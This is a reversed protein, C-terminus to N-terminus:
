NKKMPWSSIILPDTKEKPLKSWIEETIFPMFPHLLKTLSLFVHRLVSLAQPDGAQFREKNKELYVDAFKHWAFEYLSQAADSFRYREINKTVSAILMNLESIIRKDNPSILSGHTTPSYFPINKGGINMEIFRAINWLKNSFNRMGRIKDESIAIDSGPATGFILAFRLADAGYKDIM